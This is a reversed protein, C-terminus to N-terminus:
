NSPICRSASYAKADPLFLTEGFHDKKFNQIGMQTAESCAWHIFAKALDHNVGHVNGPHMPLLSMPNLLLPHQQVLPVLSIEAKLTLYTVRDILVHCGLHNAQRLTAQNGQHGRSYSQYGAWGAEIDAHALLEKEKIHTGSSDARSLFPLSQQAMVQFARVPSLQRIDGPDDTPGLILFDTSMLAHRGTAYGAQVFRIEQAPAHVLLLDALGKMAKEMAQGTGAATVRVEVGHQQLFGQALWDTMGAEVPSITSVLRLHM